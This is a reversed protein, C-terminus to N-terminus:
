VKYFLRILLLIKEKISLQVFSDNLMLFNQHIQKPRFSFFLPLNNKKYNASWSLSDSLICVPMRVPM